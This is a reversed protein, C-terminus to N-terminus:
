YKRIGMYLEDIMRFSVHRRILLDIVLVPLNLMNSMCM